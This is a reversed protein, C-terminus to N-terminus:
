VGEREARGVEPVEKAESPTGTIPLRQHQVASQQADAGGLAEGGLVRLVQCSRAPPRCHRISRNEPTAM